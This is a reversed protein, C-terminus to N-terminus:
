EPRLAANAIVCAHATMAIMPTHRVGDERRHLERTAEFGDLAPM